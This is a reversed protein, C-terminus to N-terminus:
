MKGKDRGGYWCFTNTSYNATVPKAVTLNSHTLLRYHPLLVVMFSNNLVQKTIDYFHEPDELIQGCHMGYPIWSIFDCYEMNCVALQGQTQDYYEHDNHLHFEGGEDQQLYFDRDLIERPHKDRNSHTNSRLWCKEVVTTALSVMQLPEFIPFTPTWM